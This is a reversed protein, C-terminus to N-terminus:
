FPGMETKEIQRSYPIDIYYGNADIRDKNVEGCSNAIVEHLYCHRKDSVTTLFMENNLMIKEDSEDEMIIDPIRYFTM